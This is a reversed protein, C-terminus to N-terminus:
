RGVSVGRFQPTERSDCDRRKSINERVNNIRDRFPMNETCSVYTAFIEMPLEPCEINRDFDKPCLSDYVLPPTPIVGIPTALFSPGPTGLLSGTLRWGM